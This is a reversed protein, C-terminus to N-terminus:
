RYFICHCDDGNNRLCLLQGINLSLHMDQWIRYLKFSVVSYNYVAVLIQCMYIDVDHLYFHM